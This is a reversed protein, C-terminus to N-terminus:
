FDTQRVETNDSTITDWSVYPLTSDPTVVQKTLRDFLRLRYVDFVLGQGLLIKKTSKKPTETVGIRQRKEFEAIEEPTGEITVESGDAQKITKKM